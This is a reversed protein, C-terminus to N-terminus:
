PIVIFYQTKIEAARLLFRQLVPRVIPEKVTANRNNPSNLDTATANVPSTSKSPSSRRITIDFSEKM